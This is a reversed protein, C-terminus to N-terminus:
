VYFILRHLAVALQDELGALSMVTDGLSAVPIGAMQELRVAMQKGDLEIVPNILSYPKLENVAIIPAVLMTPLDRM